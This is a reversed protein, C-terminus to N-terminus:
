SADQPLRQRTLSMAVVAVALLGLMVTLARNPGWWTWMAGFAITAAFRGLSQGTAVIALGTARASEPVVEAVAAALVGDTAAYFAGHLILCGILVVPSAVTTLLLTYVAALILYGGIFIQWRGLRDALRGLPVALLLFSLASVLPLLPFLAIDFGFRQQLLLFVFADGITVLGLATSRVCVRRFRRDRLLPVRQTAIAPARQERVFLVLVMVGALAICASTVFVADYAGTTFWLLAFALLPGLLAGATDMARHVGFSRGMTAPTSNAAILADRPATRLGKGVRDAVLVAGLAPVSSGALLLLVKTVASTAYGGTAVAKRRRWRDALHGGALRSLASAGTYLGDLFGLQLPSLGLGVVFYLPLVATVMEASVDTILSVTGLALVTGAVKTGTRVTPTPRVTSALYM